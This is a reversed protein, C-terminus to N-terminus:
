CGATEEPSRPRYIEFLSQNLPETLDLSEQASKTWAKLLTVGDSPALPEDKEIEIEMFRRKGPGRGGSRVAPANEKIRRLAADPFIIKVKEYPWVDYLAVCLKVGSKRDVVNWIHSMKDISFLRTWGTMKLFAEADEPTVSPDLPIDIEHRDMTSGMTKRQKVTFVSLRRESDHRHRVVSGGQKWYHDLGGVKRYVEINSKQSLWQHVDGTGVQSANFKVEMESHKDM